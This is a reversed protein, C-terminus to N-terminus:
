KAEQRLLYPQHSSVNKYFLYFQSDTLIKTRNGKQEIGGYGVRGAWGGLATLRSDM